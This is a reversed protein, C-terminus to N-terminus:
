VARAPFDAAKHPISLQDSDGSVIRKLHEIRERFTDEFTHASAFRLANKSWQVTRERERFSVARLIEIALERPHNMTVSVGAEVRRLIGAFAENRYGIMPVGCAMTELYTCSPDGQRHGCVFLDIESRMRPMLEEHFDLVGELKVQEQLDLEAIRRELSSLLNGDGFISLTFDLGARKLHQAVEPLDDAGKMRNLRGSFALHVPSGEALRHARAAQEEPSALMSKTIRSDFYLLSNALREGYADYTPTGNCQVGSCRRLSARQAQEQRWEWIMRKATAFVGAKAARAIQLRTRLTYEAAIVFHTDIKECLEAIHNQRYGLGGLAVAATGLRQELLPDDFSLVDIGFSLERPDVEINDLNDSPTERPEILVLVPGDWYEVFAEMGEVFKKTLWLNGNEAVQARLNPLLALTRRPLMHMPSCKSLDRSLPVSKPEEVRQEPM